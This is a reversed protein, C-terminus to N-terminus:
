RARLTKWSFVQYAFGTAMNALFINDYEMRGKLSGGVSCCHNNNEGAGSIHLFPSWYNCKCNDYKRCMLKRLIDFPGNDSTRQETQITPTHAVRCSKFLFGARMQVHLTEEICYRTFLLQMAIRDSCDDLQLLTVLLYQRVCIWM